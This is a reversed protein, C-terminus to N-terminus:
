GNDDIEPNNNDNLDGQHTVDSEKRNSGIKKKKRKRKGVKPKAGDLTKIISPNAESPFRSQLPIVREVCDYRFANGFTLRARICERSSLEDDTPNMARVISHVLSKGLSGYNFLVDSPATVYQIGGVTVPARLDITKPDGIVFDYYAMPNGAADIISSQDAAKFISTKNGKRKPLTPYSPDLKQLTKLQVPTDVGQRMNINRYSLFIKTRPRVHRLLNMSELRYAAPTSGNAYAFSFDTSVFLPAKGPQEQVIESIDCSFPNQAFINSITNMTSNWGLGPVVGVGEGDLPMFAIFDIADGMYMVRCVERIMDLVYTPIRVTGSTISIKSFSETRFGNAGFKEGYTIHLYLRLCNLCYSKFDDESVFRSWANVSAKAIM